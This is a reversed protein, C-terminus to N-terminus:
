ICLSLSLDASGSPAMKVAEGGIILHGGTLTNGM